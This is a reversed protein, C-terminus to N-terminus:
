RMRKRLMIKLFIYLGILGLSTFYIKNLFDNPMKSYNIPTGKDNILSSPARMTTFEEDEPEDTNPKNGGPFWGSRMLEIDDNTVYATAYGRKNNEDITEMRIAQCTPSSGATFANIIQLPDIQALNSMLGPVLGKFDDFTVGNGGMAGSSIFPMSGDPVNNIYISRTVNEGTEKDKCQMPTDLFFKTGLPQGTRSAGQGTVLVKVYDLLGGIDNELARFTGDASMGMESPALIQASYDYDPGLVQKTAGGTPDERKGAM